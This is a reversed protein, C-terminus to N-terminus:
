ISLLNDGPRYFIATVSEAYGCPKLGSFPIMRWGAESLVPEIEHYRVREWDDVIIVGRESLRDLSHRICAVRRRGDVVLVDIKGEALCVAKQYDEGSDLPVHRVEAHAPLMKQIREYWTVDHEVSTVQGCKKSFWVSSFGSGFEFVKADSPLRDALFDIISYTFFPIPEGDRGIPAGRRDACFWGKVRLYSDPSSLLIILGNIGLLKAVPSFLLEYTKQLFRM